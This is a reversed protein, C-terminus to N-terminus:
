SPPTEKRHPAGGSPTGRNSRTKKLHRRVTEGSISRVVRLEVLREAILEMTWSERGEPAESCAIQIMRAEVEGTVKSPVPPVERKKRELAALPGVECVRARLREISPVSLGSAFAAERDTLSPSGFSIDTGLLVKARQVKFAAARRSRAISALEEREATTLKIHHMKNPM